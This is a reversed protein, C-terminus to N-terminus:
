YIAKGKERQTGTSESQELATWYAQSRLNAYVCHYAPWLEIVWSELPPSPLPQFAQSTATASPLPTFEEVVALKLSSLRYNSLPM